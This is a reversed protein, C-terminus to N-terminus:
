IECPLPKGVVCPIVTISKASCMNNCNVTIPKTYYQKMQLHM